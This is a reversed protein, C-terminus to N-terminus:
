LLDDRGGGSRIGLRRTRGDRKVPVELLEDRHEVGVAMQGEGAQWVVEEGIAARGRERPRERPQGLRELGEAILAHLCGGYRQMETLIEVGLHIRDRRKVQGRGLGRRQEGL